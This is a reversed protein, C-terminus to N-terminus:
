EYSEDDDMSTSIPIMRVPEPQPVEADTVTLPAGGELRAKLEPWKERPVFERVLSIIQGIEAILAAKDLSGEDRRRIEELKLASDLLGKVTVPTEGSMLTEYGIVMVTELVAMPTIATAVGNVFDTQNETARRELIERYAMRGVNQVPFHKSCHNRISDITVRDKEDLTENDSGLARLVMAYSAGRALLENVKPRIQDNRCVRCRPELHFGNTRATFDASEMVEDIVDSTETATTM